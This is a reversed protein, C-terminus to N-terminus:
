GHFLGGAHVGGVDFRQGIVRCRHGHQDLEQDVSGDARSLDERIMGAALTANTLPDIVIFSGTTRNSTYPDFFLPLTTKVDVAGIENPDLKTAPQHELTNIDVRYRIQSFRARVTRTTHKLM